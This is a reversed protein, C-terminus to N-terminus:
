LVAKFSAKLAKIVLPEKEVGCPEKTLGSNGTSGQSLILEAEWACFFYIKDAM